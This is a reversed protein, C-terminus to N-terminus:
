RTEFAKANFFDLVFTIHRQMCSFARGSDRSKIAEYIETHQSIIREINRPDEYLGQLNKSIGFFLYDYLNRMIHVQVPNRTAYSIAMHFSVDAENGLGGSAIDEKMEQLSNQLFEIDRDDARLAAMAAANCELGMRVELLEVLTANEADMAQALPNQKKPDPQKVFNGQGQKQDILGLIVLKNIAERVTPRSVGLALSLERESILREGPKLYGRYIMERLQDCVQDSIRKPRIPKLPLMM